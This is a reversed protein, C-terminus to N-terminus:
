KQEIDYMSLVPTFNGKRNILISYLRKAWDVYVLTVQAFNPLIYKM